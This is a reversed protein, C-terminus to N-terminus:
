AISNKFLAGSLPSQNNHIWRSQRHYTETSMRVRDHGINGDPEVFGLRAFGRIYRRLTNIPLKPRTAWTTINLDGEGDALAAGVLIACRDALNELEPFCVASTDNLQLNDSFTITNHEQKNNVPM